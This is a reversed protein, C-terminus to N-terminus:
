LYGTRDGGELGIAADCMHAELYNRKHGLDSDIVFGDLENENVINGHIVKKQRDVGNWPLKGAGHIAINKVSDEPGTGGTLLIHGRQAIAKGIEKPM